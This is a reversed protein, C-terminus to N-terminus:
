EKEKMLKETLIKLETELRHIRDYLSAIEIQPDFGLKAGRNLVEGATKEINDTEFMVRKVVVPTDGAKVWVSGDDLKRVVQGPTSYYQPGNVVDIACIILKERGLYTYAGPYKPLPLAKVLAAIREAPWSWHIIGDEPVRQPIYTALHYNQKTRKFDSTALYDELVAMVAQAQKEALIEHLEDFSLTGINTVSEQALIDGTDFENEMMHVSLGIEEDGNIVAWATPHVGRWRPLLSWHTNICPYTNLFRGPVLKPYNCALLLNPTYKDLDGINYSFDLNYKNIIKLLEDNKWGAEEPLIVIHIWGKQALNLLTPVAPHYTGCFAIKLPHAISQNSM